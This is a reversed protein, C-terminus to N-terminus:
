RIERSRPDSGIPLNEDPVLERVIDMFQMPVLRKCRRLLVPIPSSPEHRDYYECIRDLLRIRRRPQQGTRLRGKAPGLGGRWGAPGAREEVGRAALRVALVSDIQGLVDLLEAFRLAHLTGVQNTVHVEIAQLHAIAARVSAATARLDDLKCNGFAGDIADLAPPM